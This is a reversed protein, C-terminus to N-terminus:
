ISPTSAPPTRQGHCLDGAEGLTTDRNSL